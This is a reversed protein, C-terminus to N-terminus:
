RPEFGIEVERHLLREEMRGAPAYIEALWELCYTRRVVAAGDSVLYGEEVEALWYYGCLYLAPPALVLLVIALAVVVASWDRTAWDRRKSEM